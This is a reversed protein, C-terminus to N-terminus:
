IEKLIIDLADKFDEKKVSGVINHLKSKKDLIFFSPISTINFYRALKGNLEIDVKYFDVEKYEESIESITPKMMKCPVCWNAYFDIVVPKNGIPQIGKIIESDFDFVLRRFQEENIEKVM